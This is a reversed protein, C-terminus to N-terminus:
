AEPEEGAPPEGGVAWPKVAPLEEDDFDYRVGPSAKRRDVTARILVYHISSKPIAVMEQDHPVLVGDSVGDRVTVRHNAILSAAELSEADIQETPVFDTGSIHYQLTFKAM